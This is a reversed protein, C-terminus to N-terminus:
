GKFNEYWLQFIFIRWLKYKSNDNGQYFSDRIEIVSSTYFLKDKNLRKENIQSYVLEKLEKRMWLEFPIDFGSKPRNLLHKPIYQHAIEKLIYKKIGDKIKISSPITALYSILNEDLFPTHLRINHQNMAGYSKVVEGDTMTTKFYTGIIEDVTEHHGNFNIENFTTTIPTSYNQVLKELENERFLINRAEITAPINKSSLIQLLKSYKTPLNHFDKLYPMKELALKKLPFTLSARLEYNIAHIREFFHTDDATAFVEDGGDGVFINQIQAEKLLEATLVTPTAAYEAFPEDYIKCLKPIIKLADKPTFYHEHHETGLHKAIAKADKAENIDQNDFGITFTNLKHNSQKQLLAALTSSDYGGSLSLAVKENSSYTKSISNHLLLHANEIIEKESSVIKKNQYCNELKWYTHNFYEIKILDFHNYAGSQVKYCKNLITNPQLVCGFQLYSALSKPNISPKFQSIQHFDSIRTGFIILTNSHYFNLPIVGVKDKILILKELKKDYIILAFSGELKEIFKIGCRMYAEKLLQLTSTEKINSELDSSFISQNIINGNLFLIIEEDELLTSSETKSYSLFFNYKSFTKYFLTNDTTNFYNSSSFDEKTYDIFGFFNQM